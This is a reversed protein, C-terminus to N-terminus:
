KLITAYDGSLLSRHSETEGRFSVAMAFHPLHFQWLESAAGGHNSGQVERDGTRLELWQAVAGWSYSTTKTIMITINNGCSGDVLVFQTSLCFQYNM